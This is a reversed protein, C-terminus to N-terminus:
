PKLLRAVSEFGNLRAVDEPTLKRARARPSAGYKLLLRVMKSDGNFAAAHMATFGELSKAYENSITRLKTNAGAELLIKAVDLHGRWTAIYLPSWNLKTRMNINAGHEILYLTAQAHGYHVSASLPFYGSSDRRNINAGDLLHFMISPIDGAEAASHLTRNTPKYPKM